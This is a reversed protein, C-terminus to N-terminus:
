SEPNLKLWELIQRLMALEVEMKPRAQNESDLSELLAKTQEYKAFISATYSELKSISGRVPLLHLLPDLFFPDPASFKPKSM